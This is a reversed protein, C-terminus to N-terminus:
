VHHCVTLMKEFSVNFNLDVVNAVLDSEDDVGLFGGTFSPTM